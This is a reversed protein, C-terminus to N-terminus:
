EDEKDLEAHANSIADSLLRVVEREAPDKRAKSMLFWRTDKATQLLAIWVEKKM